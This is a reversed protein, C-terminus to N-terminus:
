NIPVSAQPIALPGSLFAHGAPQANLRWLTAEEGGLPYGVYTVDPGWGLLANPVVWGAIPAFLELEPPPVTVAQNDANAWYWGYRDPLEKEVSYVLGGDSPLVTGDQPIELYGNDFITGTPYLLIRYRTPWPIGTLWLYLARNDEYGACVVMSRWPNGPSGAQFLHPPDAALVDKNFTFEVRPVIHIFQAKTISVVGPRAIALGYGTAVHGSPGAVNTVPGLMQVHNFQRGLTDVEIWDDGKAEINLDTVSPDFPGRFVVGGLPNGVNATIPDKFTLRVIVGSLAEASKLWADPPV